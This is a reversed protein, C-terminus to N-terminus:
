VEAGISAVAQEIRRVAQSRRRFRDNRRREYDRRSVRRARLRIELNRLDNKLKELEEEARKIEVFREHLDPYDAEIERSLRKLSRTLEDLRRNIEASRHDFRDREIKEENLDRQLEELESFLTIRERQQELFNSLKPKEAVVPIKVVEGEGRRRLVYVAGVAGAAVVLLGGWRIVSAVPSLSLEVLIEPRESPLSAGLDFYVDTSYGVKETSSPEPQSVILRGGEPLTVVASLERVYYPFDDLPYILTSRGGESTVHEKKPLSYAVTFVWRDAPMFTSRPSVYAEIDGNEGTEKTTTQLTGVGDRAKVNSADPPLLLRFRNFSEGMNIVSYSDEVRLSGGKIIIHREMNQCDFLYEDDPPPDYRITANNPSYQRISESEQQLVWIGETDSYNFAFDYAEDFEAEAPLEVRIQFSSINYSIAPFVPILAEYFKGVDSMLNVFLYSARMELDVGDMLTFPSPLAIRYGDYEGISEESFDLTIWSGGLWAEFSRRENIFSSQSGTWFDSVDLQEGPPSELTFTDNMLVIGANMIRIDRRVRVVPHQPEAEVTQAMVTGTPLAALTLGIIILALARKM